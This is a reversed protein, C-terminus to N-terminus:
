AQEGELLSPRPALRAMATTTDPALRLTHRGQELARVYGHENDQCVFCVRLDYTLGDHELEVSCLANDGLIGRPDNAGDDASWTPHGCVICRGCWRVVREQGTWGSRFVVVRHSPAPVVNRRFLSAAHEEDMRTPSSYDAIM